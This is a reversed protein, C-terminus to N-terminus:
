WNVYIIDPACNRAKMWHFLDADSKFDECCSFIRRLGGGAQRVMDSLFTDYDGDFDGLFALYLPYKAPQLGYVKIDDGTLDDLIVIRAFHLRDLREFPVQANEPDATGPARNMGALLQRLEAQRQAAIPAVVMFSSQPTM